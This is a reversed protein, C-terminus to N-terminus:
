EARIEFMYSIPPTLAYKIRCSDYWVSKQTKTDCRWHWIAKNRIMVTTRLGLAGALHATATDCSWMHDVCSIWASTHAFDTLTTVANVLQCGANDIQVQLESLEEATADKQLCVILCPTKLIESEQLFEHLTYARTRMPATRIDGHWVLGYVPLKHPNRMKLNLKYQAVLNEPAKLYGATQLPEWLDTRSPISLCYTWFDPRPKNQWYNPERAKNMDHVKMAPFSAQVLASLEAGVAVDIDAGEDALAQLYRLGFIQDGFGNEMVVLLRQKTLFEGEWMSFDMFATEAPCPSGPVLRWDHLKWGARFEGEALLRLSQNYHIVPKTYALAKLRREALQVLDKRGAAEAVPALAQWYEISNVTRMDMNSLPRLMAAISTEIDKEVGLVAAVAAKFLSDPALKLLERAAPIQGLMMLARALHIAIMPDRYLNQFPLLAQPTQTQYAAEGLADLTQLDHIGNRVADELRLLASPWSHSQAALLGATRMSEPSTEPHFRGTLAKEAELWLKFKQPDSIKM